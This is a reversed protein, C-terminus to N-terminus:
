AQQCSLDKQTAFNQLTCHDTYVNVHAGLLDSCWKKLAHMIALLEKEHMPYNLKAGKM